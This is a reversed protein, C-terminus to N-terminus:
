SGSPEIPTSRVSVRTTNSALDINTEPDRAPFLGTLFLTGIHPAALLEGQALNALDNSAAANAARAVLRITGHVVMPHQGRPTGDLLVQVHPKSAPTWNAPLKDGVAYTPQLRTRLYDVVIPVPDDYTVALKM